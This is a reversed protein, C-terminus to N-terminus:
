KLLLWNRALNENFEYSERQSHKHLTHLVEYEMDILQLFLLKKIFNQKSKSKM